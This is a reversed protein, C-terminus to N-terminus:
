RKKSGNKLCVAMLGKGDPPDWVIRRLHSDEECTSLDEVRYPIPDPPAVDSVKEFELLFRRPSIRGEPTGPEQENTNLVARAVDSLSVAGLAKQSATGGEARGWNRIGIICAGTRRALGHLKSTLTRRAKADSSIDGGVFSNLADLIVLRVQRANISAEMEELCHLLDIPETTSAIDHVWLRDLDGNHVRVIDRVRSDSDESTFYMVDFPEGGKDCNPMPLGATARAAIDRAITSKQTGMYGSMSVFQGFPLHGTWLWRLKQEPITSGQVFLIRPKPAAVQQCHEHTFEAIDTGDRILDGIDCGDAYGNPWQLAFLKCPTKHKEVLGLIKNQGDRGAKDNDLCLRVSRGQLYKLWEEQFINASPVALIDYRERTRNAKLHQDLAIGDFPGEVLFLTRDERSLFNLGHLRVALVPLSLKKNTEPYYRLANLVEDQESFFPILWCDHLNCWALKHRKLTQLPLERKAKLQRYQEDSTRELCMEFIARLFTYANGKAGCTNESHCKYQGTARNLYFRDKECFPCQDAHVNDTGNAKFDLGYWQFLPLYDKGNSGPKASSHPISVM